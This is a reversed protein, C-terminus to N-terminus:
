NETVRRGYLETLGRLDGTMGEYDEARELRWSWNGERGSPRNMRAEAGLGLLDQLPLIALRAVSALAMRTFAMHVGRDEPDYGLYARVREKQLLDAEEEWWGRVTNNDHTGTYVLDNPVHNHPAYINRAVDGGFAFLLVLMGSLGLEEMVAVVDPTIIGLNEAIFPMGPFADRLTKFLAESPVDEWCGGIATEGDAPISWYQLLGRFHDIRLRDFLRLSHKLRRIWWNFGDDRMANWDYLPNGWRQGTESFYDPPVGAVAVPRRDEGLQFLGPETWVDASDMSVYIPLDGLLLVGKDRALGRLRDWQRFFLFQGFIQREIEEGLVQRQEGIAGPDRDRLSEPWLYWPLGGLRKKIAMFLAFDEVWHSEDRRFRLFAEVDGRGERFYSVWARGLLHFRLHGARIYDIRGPPFNVDDDLDREHLLGERLLLEPSILLPNGAFASPSSYPSNDLANDTVGLPLVQWVTQGSAELFQLFRDAEPGIDGMGFPSPLSTPHLLIGSRRRELM